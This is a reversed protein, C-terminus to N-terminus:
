LATLDFMPFTEISIRKNFYDVASPRRCVHRASQALVGYGANSLGRGMAARDHVTRNCAQLGIECGCRAFSTVLM